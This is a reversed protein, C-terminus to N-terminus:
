GLVLETEYRGGAVRYVKGLVSVVDRGGGGEGFRVGQGWIGLVRHGVEYRDDMWPVVPRAQVASACEEDGLCAALSVMAQTDDQGTGDGERLVNTTHSSSVYEFHAPRYVLEGSVCLVAAGAETPSRGVWLREDSEIVATVRVRCTQDIIAYWLNQEDPWVGPPVVECPNECDLFIGCERTLVQVGSSQLHWTQGGDFSIEVWVRRGPGGLQSIAPLLQRSRRMWSGYTAVDADCVTSFDFPQYDDFPANRNYSAADYGGHENLVWRRAADCYTRQLPGLRHQRMFWTMQQISSGLRPVDGPLLAAEKAAERDPEAVNDLGDLPLWGPVLPVTMEYKKVGGVILPGCGAGRWDV